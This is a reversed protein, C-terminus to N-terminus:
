KKAAAVPKPRWFDPSAAVIQESPNSLDPRFRSLTTETTVATESLSKLFTGYAEEGLLQALPPTGDIEAFSRRLTSVYYVSGTQGILAQSVLTTVKTTSKETAAKIIRLQEELKPGMGPRLRVMTTQLWRAEGIMKAMAAADAPLNSSLEWRRRRVESRASEMSADGDRFTQETGAQGYAKTMAAMFGVNAEEIAAYNARPSIFRITHGQGYEQAVAIWDSGKNQRNAAAIKKAVAEFQAMKEPKVQVTFVDLLDNQLQAAAPAALLTWAVPVWPARRLM